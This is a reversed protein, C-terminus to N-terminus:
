NNSQLEDEGNKLYIFLDNEDNKRVGRTILPKDTIKSMKELVDWGFDEGLIGSIQVETPLFVIKIETEGSEAVIKAVKLAASLMTSKSHIQTNRKM